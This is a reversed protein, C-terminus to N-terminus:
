KNSIKALFKDGKRNEEPSEKSFILHQYLEVKFIVHINGVCIHTAQIMFAYRFYYQPHMECHTRFM